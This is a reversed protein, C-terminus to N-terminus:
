RDRGDQNPLPDLVILPQDFEVPGSDPVLVSRVVGTHGAVIRNMLKMAEVIGIVTDPEVTSGIAVFPPEGPAQARYFTGVIPSRVMTEPAEEIPSPALALAGTLHAVDAGDKAGDEWELEVSVDGAGLTLRHLPGPVEEILEKATSALQRLLQDNGREPDAADHPERNM